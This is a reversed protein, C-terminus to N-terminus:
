IKFDILEELDKWLSPQGEIYAKVDSAAKAQLFMKSNNWRLESHLRKMEKKVLDKVQNESKKSM